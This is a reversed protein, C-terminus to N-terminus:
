LPLRNMWCFFKLDIQWHEPLVYDNNNVGSLAMAPSHLRDKVEDWLWAAKLAQEVRENIEDKCYKGQIQLGYAVNQLHKLFPIPNKFFWEM